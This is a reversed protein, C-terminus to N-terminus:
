KGIAPVPKNLAWHIANVLLGRFAPDKFDDPHGLSTYFVRAGKYDHTWAVPETHDPITGTLLLTTNTQLPTNRYLSGASAFTEPVGRLIPHSKASPNVQVKPESDKGYHNQYNGGLVQKDFVLWNQFAHSATRIGIVPKGSEFYKQFKKLQEEPLTMRRAFVVLLDARELADLGEISDPKRRELYVTKLAYNTELFRAFLPLTEASHYEDEGSVLVIAPLNAACAITAWLLGSLAAINIPINLRM